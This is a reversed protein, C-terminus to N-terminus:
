NERKQFAISKQHISSTFNSLTNVIMPVGISDTRVWEDIVIEKKYAALSQQLSEIAQMLQLKENM